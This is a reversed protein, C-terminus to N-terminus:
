AKTRGTVVGSVVITADWDIAEPPIPDSLWTGNKADYFKAGLMRAYATNVALLYVNKDELGGLRRSASQIAFDLNTNETLHVDKRGMEKLGTKKIEEMAVANTGHYLIEPPEGEPLQIRVASHGYRARIRNGVLEYRQKPCTSVVRTIDDLTVDSYKEQARLGRLVAELPAFGNKDLRIGWVKPNHRLGYSLAKSLNEDEKTLVLKTTM